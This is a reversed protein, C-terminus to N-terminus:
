RSYPLFKKEAKRLHAHFASFAVGSLKALKEISTKRPYDYYGHKIALEFAAKQKGTLEPRISLISFNSIKRNEIKLIEAGYKKVLFNLFNNLESREWSGVTYINDGKSDIVIPELHMVGTSYAPELEKPDKIQAVIFDGNIEFNVIERANRLDKVFEKKNKKDGYVFGIIDIYLYKEEKKVSIIYGAVSVNHKLTRSGVAGRKGSVRVKAVWM